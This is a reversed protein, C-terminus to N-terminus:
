IDNKDELLEVENILFYCFIGLYITTCFLCGYTFYIIGMM